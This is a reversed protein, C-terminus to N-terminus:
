QGGTIDDPTTPLPETGLQNFPQGAREVAEGVGKRRQIEGRNQMAGIATEPSQVTALIQALEENNQSQPPYIIQAELSQPEGPKAPNSVAMFIDTIVDQRDPPLNYFAHSDRMFEGFVQRYADLPDHQFIHIETVLPEGSTPDYGVTGVKAIELVERAENLDQLKDLAARRGAHIAISTKAEEPTVLGAQMLSLTRQERDKSRQVFLSGSDIRVEPDDLLRTTDLSSWIASGFTDFIRVSRSEDLHTKYLILADRFIKAFTNEVGTETVQLKSIDAAALSRIAVGSQDAGETKGLSNNQMGALSNMEDRITIQSKEAGAPWSPGTMYEPKHGLKFPIKEGARDNFSGTPVGGNRPILVKPKNVLDIFDMQQKRSKNYAAQPGLLSEILGMGWVSGPMPTYVVHHIGLVGKALRDEGEGKWLWINPQLFIGYDQSGDRAYVYYVDMRNKLKGKGAVSGFLGGKTPESIAAEDIASAHEPFQKKLIDRNIIKRQAVWMTEAAKRVGPEYFMDTPDFAELMAKDADADWYARFGVNGKTLLYPMADAWATPLDADWWFFNVIEQSAIAKSIDETSPTTPLVTASPPQIVLRSSAVRYYDLLLNPSYMARRTLKKMADQVSGVTAQGNGGQRGWLFDTCLDWILDRESRDQKSEILLGGMKDADPLSM